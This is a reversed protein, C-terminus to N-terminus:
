TKYIGDIDILHSVQLLNYLLTTQQLAQSKRINQSQIKSLHILLNYNEEQDCAKTYM